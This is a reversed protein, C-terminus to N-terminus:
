KGEGRTIEIEIKDWTQPFEGTLNYAANAARRLISALTHQNKARPYLNETYLYEGNKAIIHVKAEKAEKTM